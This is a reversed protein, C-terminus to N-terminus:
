ECDICTANYKKIVSEYEKVTRPLKTFNEYGTETILVDDELRVGGFKLFRKLVTMDFFAAKKEDKLASNIWLEVFYCGPEVTLVMGAKLTRQTRLWRVGLANDKKDLTGLYGGVDHVDMGIFHGLGHPMFVSGIQHKMLDEVSGGKLIGIKLLHSLIVREALRHMEKWKTGPKLNAFVAEQAERVANHIAAQDETFKGSVPYSATIDTAYGHYEGGMDLVMMDNERLIRDNPRGAHGYHLIAGNPGSACICTYAVHRAGGYVGCFAKFMSELQIESMGARIHRMVFVHAQCTVLTCIRMYKIELPTKIVRCEALVPYLLKNDVKFECKQEKCIEKVNPVLATTMGSDTNLGTLVYVTSVKKEVFSKALDFVYRVEDVSFKDKYFKLSKPPGNWRCTEDSLKPVYLVTKQDGLFIAGYCDPEVLRFLYEFFSEQRFPCSVTDTDFYNAGLSTGGQLLIVGNKDFTGADDVMKLLKTRIECGLNRLVKEDNLYKFEESLTKISYLDQPFKSWHSSLTSGLKSEM